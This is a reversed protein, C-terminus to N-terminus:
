QMVYQSLISSNYSYLKQQLVGTILFIVMYTIYIYIQRLYIHSLVGSTMILEATIQIHLMKRVTRLTGDLHLVHICLSERIAM